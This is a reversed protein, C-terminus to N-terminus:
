AKTGSGIRCYLSMSAAMAAIELAAIGLAVAGIIVINDDILKVLKPLCGLVNSEAANAPTCVGIRCCQGPYTNNEMHFPSGTFDTYNHFGCCDLPSIFAPATQVACESVLKEIKHEPDNISSMFNGDMTANWLGTIDPNKGYDQTIVEVAEEGLQDILKKALPQFVLVVIAGAVEAIFVVLVIVFFMLLMCKSERMAGCCGLFGMILLVGGVAILLYGVNLLQDLEPPANEIHNLVGLLSSSDVKVWIGVGLIAAGALFIVGNFLFMMVKLFGYCGMKEGQQLWTVTFPECSPTHSFHRKRNGTPRPPDPRIYCSLLPRPCHAFDWFEM